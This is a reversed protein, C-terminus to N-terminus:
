GMSNGNERGHINNRGDRDVVQRPHRGAGTPIEAIQDGV